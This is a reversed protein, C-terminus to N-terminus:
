KPPIILTRQRLEDGLGQGRDSGADITNTLERGERPPNMANRKHATM